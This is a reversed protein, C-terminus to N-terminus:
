SVTAQRYGATLRFNRFSSVPRCDVHGRQTRAAAARNRNECGAAFVRFILSEADTVIASHSDRPHDRM